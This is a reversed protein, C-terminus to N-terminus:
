LITERAKAGVEALNKKSKHLCKLIERLKNKIGAKEIFYNYAYATVAFGNPIKVGKKTLNQYMEGLSANKGGVLPIDEITLENFWFIFKKNKDM